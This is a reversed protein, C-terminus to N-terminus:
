RARRRGIRAHHCLLAPKRVRALALSGLPIVPPLNTGRRLATAIAYASANAAREHFNALAGGSTARIQQSHYLAVAGHSGLIGTLVAFLLECLHQVLPLYETLSGALCPSTHM